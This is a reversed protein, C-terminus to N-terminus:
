GGGEPRARLMAVTLQADHLDPLVEYRVPADTFTPDAAVDATVDVWMQGVGFGGLGGLLARKGDHSVALVYSKRTASLRPGREMFDALSERSRRRIIEERTLDRESNALAEARRRARRIAILAALGLGVELVTMPHPQWRRM